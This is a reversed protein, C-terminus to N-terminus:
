SAPYSEPNWKELHAVQAKAKETTSFGWRDYFPSLDKGAVNCTITLWLDRQAQPDKPWDARVKEFERFTQKYFDWGFAKRLHMYMALPLSYGSEWATEGSKEGTAYFERVAESCKKYWGVAETDLGVVTEMTYMSFINVTVEGPNRWVPRQHNHGLEHFWGWTGETSLKAHDVLIPASVLHSMIPYGSHLYGVSIQIDAVFREKYRPPTRGSLDDQADAADQWFQLPKVPDELDRVLEAPITMAIKESELEAWPAHLAKLRKWEDASTKGLIFRPMEVAGAITIDFKQGIKADDPVVLYVPGGFPNAVTTTAARIPKTMTILPWRQTSEKNYLNDKHCGIRIELNAQTAADPVTVTVLAGPAAYLGTSQWRTQTTDVAITRTVAKASEPVAGPFHEAAAVPKIKEPPMLDFFTKFIAAQALVGSAQDFQRTTKGRKKKEIGSLNTVHRDYLAWVFQTQKDSLLAGNRGLPAVVKRLMQPDMHKSADIAQLAIQFQEDPVVPGDAKTEAYAPFALIM